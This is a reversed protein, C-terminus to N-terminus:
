GHLERGGHNGIKGPARLNFTRLPADKLWHVLLQMNPMDYPPDGNGTILGTSYGDIGHNHRRLGTVIGATQGIEIHGAAALRGGPIKGADPPISTTM